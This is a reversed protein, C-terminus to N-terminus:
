KEEFEILEYTVESGDMAEGSDIDKDDINVWRRFVLGTGSAYSNEEYYTQIKNSINQHIVTCTSDFLQMNVTMPIHISKYEFERLPSNNLGNGDWFDFEQIPFKLIIEKRNQFNRVVNLAGMRVSFSGNINWKLSDFRIYRTISQNLKGENDIYESEIVNKVQYEYEVNSTGFKKNYHISDVKYTWSHGVKLPFYSPGVGAVYPDLRNKRCSGLGFALFAILFFNLIQRM